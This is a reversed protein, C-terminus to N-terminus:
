GAGSRRRTASTSPVPAMPVRAATVRARSTLSYDYSARGNAALTDRGIHYGGSAVHADDGVCGLTSWPAGNVNFLRLPAMLDDPAYTV